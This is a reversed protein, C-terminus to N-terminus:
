QDRTKTSLAADRLVQLDVKQGNTNCLNIIPMIRDLCHSLNLNLLLDMSSELREASMANTIFDLKSNLWHDMMAAEKSDPNERAHRALHLSPWSVVLHALINRLIKTKAIEEKLQYRMRKVKFKLDIVRFNQEEAAPGGRYLYGAVFCATSMVITVMHDPNM